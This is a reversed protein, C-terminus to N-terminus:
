HIAEQRAAHGRHAEVIAVNIATVLQLMGHLEAERSPDGSHKLAQSAVTNSVVLAERWLVGLDAGDGELMPSPNAAHVEGHEHRMDNQRRHDNRQRQERDIAAPGLADLLM